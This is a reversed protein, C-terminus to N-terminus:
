NHHSVQQRSAIDQGQLAFMQLFQSTISWSEALIHWSTGHHRPSSSSQEVAPLNNCPMAPCTGRRTWRPGPLALPPAFFCSMNMEVITIFLSSNHHMTIVLITISISSYHRIMFHRAVKAVLKCSVDKIQQLIGEVLVVPISVLVEHALCANIEQM